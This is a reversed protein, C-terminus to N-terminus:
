HDDMRRLRAEYHRRVADAKQLVASLAKCEPMSFLTLAETAADSKVLQAQSQAYDWRFFYDFTHEGQGPVDETTSGIARMFSEPPNTSCARYYYDVTGLLSMANTPHHVVLAKQTEGILDDRLRESTGAIWSGTYIRWTAGDYEIVGKTVVAGANTTLVSYREPDIATIRSPAPRQPAPPLSASAKSASAAPERHTHYEGTKRNTHGGAADLGGPHAQLIEAILVAICLNM